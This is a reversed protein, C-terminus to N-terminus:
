SATDRSAGAANGWGAVIRCYRTHVVGPGVPEAAGLARPRVQVVLSDSSPFGAAHWAELAARLRGVLLPGDPGYGRLGAGRPPRTVVLALGDDGALALTGIGPALADPLEGGAPHVLLRVAGPTTLALFLGFGDWLDARGIRAKVPETDGPRALAADLRGPDLRGPDLRGPDPHATGGAGAPRLLLAGGRLPLVHEVAAGIGRLRVFACGRVSTSHLGGDPQLDLAVSLQSGRLTLPLLLRGGVALQAVWEPRVDPSGVTLVIRDYPAGPPHGLAGDGCHLEVGEIGASLLHERARQVLEADIDVATVAGQPGVLHALLAANYGTGAGIELVRHGPRVDLQELMIAMMSPQSATSTAVGDVHQVAVAEDAYAQSVALGPLFLHRPVARFAQEVAATRLRGSARLADVLRGREWAATM